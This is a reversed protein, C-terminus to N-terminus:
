RGAAIERCRERAYDWASFRCDPDDTSIWPDDGFTTYKRFIEEPDRSPGCEALSLEVIRKCCAIAAERDEFEGAKRREEDDMYHSNENVYVTYTM